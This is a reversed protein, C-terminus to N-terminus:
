SFSTLSSFLQTCSPVFTTFEATQGDKVGVRSNDARREAV